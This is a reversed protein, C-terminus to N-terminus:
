FVISRKRSSWFWNNVLFIHTPGILLLALKLLPWDTLQMSLYIGDLGTTLNMTGSQPSLTSEPMPNDYRGALSCLSAPRYSMGIGSDVADGMWPSYIKISKVEWCYISRRRQKKVRLLLTLHRQFYNGPRFSFQIKNLVIKKGTCFPFIQSSSCSCSSVASHFGCDSYRTYLIYTYPFISVSFM